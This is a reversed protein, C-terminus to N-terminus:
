GDIGSVRTDRMVTYRELWPLRAGRAVPETALTLAASTYDIARYAFHIADGIDIRRFRGGLAGSRAIVESPQILRVVDPLLTYSRSVITRGGEDIVVGEEPDRSFVLQPHRDGLQYDVV